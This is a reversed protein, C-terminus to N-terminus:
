QRRCHRAIQRAGQQSPRPAPRADGACGAEVGAQWMLRWLVAMRTGWRRFRPIMRADCEENCVSAAVAFVHRARQPQRVLLTSTAADYCLPGASVNAAPLPRAPTKGDIPIATLM